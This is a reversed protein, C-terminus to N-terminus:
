SGVFRYVCGLGLDGPCVEVTGVNWKGKSISRQLRSGEM